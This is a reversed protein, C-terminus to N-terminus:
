NYLLLILWARSIHLTQLRAIIDTFDPHALPLLYSFDATTVLLAAAAKRAAV